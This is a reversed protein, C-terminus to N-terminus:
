LATQTNRAAPATSAFRAAALHTTTAPWQGHDVWQTSCGCCTTNGTMPLHSTNASATACGRASPGDSTTTRPSAGTRMPSVIVGGPRTQDVWVYPFEGVRVAVTAIVRDYPAGDPHGHIGDGIVVRVLLDTALLATRARGALVLGVEVTTVNPAGLRAALLAANYGTGTGIELVTHGDHIDLAALMGLVLEPKSASSTCLEGGTDPWRTEGDDFQILIPVDRYAV